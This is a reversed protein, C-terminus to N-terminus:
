NEFGIDWLSKCLIKLFYSLLSFKYSLWVGCLSVAVREEIISVMKGVDEM